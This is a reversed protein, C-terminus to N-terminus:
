ASGRGKAPSSQHSSPSPDDADEGGGENQEKRLRGRGLTHAAPGAGLEPIELHLRQLQIRSQGTVDHVVGVPICPDIPLEDPTGLGRARVVPRYRHLVSHHAGLIDPEGCPAQSHGAQAHGDEHAAPVADRTVEVPGQRLIWEVQHDAVCLESTSSRADAGAPLLCGGAEAEPGEVATRGAVVPPVEPDLSKAAAAEGPAKGFRGPIRKTPDLVEHPVLIGVEEASGRAVSPSDAADPEAILPLDPGVPHADERLPGGRVDM